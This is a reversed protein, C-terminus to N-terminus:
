EAKEAPPRLENAEEISLGLTNLAGYYWESKLAMMLDNDVVKVKPDLKGVGEVNIWFEFEDGLDATGNLVVTIKNVPADNSGNITIGGTSKGGVTADGAGVSVGSSQPNHIKIKFEGPVTVCIPKKENLSLEYLGVTLKLEGGNPCDPPPAACASQLAVLTVAAFSTASLKRTM